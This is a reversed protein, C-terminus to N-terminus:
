FFPCIAQNKQGVAVSKFSANKERFNEVVFHFKNIKYSDNSFLLQGQLHIM